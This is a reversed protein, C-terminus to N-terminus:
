PKTKLVTRGRALEVAMKTATVLNQEHAIGKGAIDFATGHDVSTRIIPLGLTTNVTDGFGAVKCPIHGQDHYLAVVADFEGKNARLFVTDAPVPKPSVGHWGNSRAEDIPPQVIRTEEDGFIPECHPNLGAVAISPEKGPRRLLCFDRTLRITELLRGKDALRVPIDKFPIHCTAHVVVLGASALCLRSTPANCEQQLLETHGGYVYGGAHMAEKNLPATVIAAIREALALKVAAIVWEASCRGAEPCVIGTKIKTLDYKFPSYVCVVGDPASLAEEPEAVTKVTLTCGAVADIGFIMREPSGIVVFKAVNKMDARMLAKAIIEPGIGCCDGMTIGMLPRKDVGTKFSRIRDVCQVLCHRDGLAGSKTCLYKGDSGGGRVKLIPVAEQIKGIMQAGHASLNQLLMTATDGGCAVFGDAADPAGLTACVQKLLSANGGVDATFVSAETASAVAKTSFPLVAGVGKLVQLQEGTVKQMSGSVVAVHGKANNGLESTGPDVSPALGGPLAKALAIALGASGAFIGLSKLALGANAILDMDNEDMCDVVFVTRENAAISGNCIDELNGLDHLGVNLITLPTARGKQAAAFSARLDSNVVPSGPDKRMSTRSVPVGGALQQGGITTRGCQVYAPALFAWKADHLDMLVALESGINGRITSDVKKYLLCGRGAPGYAEVLEQFVQQQRRAAQDGAVNRSESTAAVVGAGALFSEDYKLPAGTRKHEPLLVVTKQSSVGRLHFPLAADCAGTLDDAFIRVTPGSVINALAAMINPKLTVFPQNHQQLFFFSNLFWHTPIIKREKEKGKVYYLVIILSVPGM